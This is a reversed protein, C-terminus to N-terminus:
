GPLLQQGAAQRRLQDIISRIAGSLSGNPALELYKEYAAVAEKYKELKEYVAGLLQYIVPETESLQKIALQYEAAAEEYQSKEELIRALGVHAEPQFGHAERIARRFSAIAKDTFADERYIRGEVASAEPYTPRTSRAADIEELAGSSDNLSLLVRALGVHAAPFAPRLTLAHRYLEAAKQRSEDDKAQERATEAEQFTLEARDSTRVLKVAVNGRRGPLLPTTVEKFGNARVRMTHRGSSIKTLTLKGAADAAGRRIEDLWVIANPETIITISATGTKARPKLQAQSGPISFSVAILVFLAALRSRRTNKTIGTRM